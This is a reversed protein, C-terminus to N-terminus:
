QRADTGHDVGTDAMVVQYSHAYHSAGQELVLYIGLGHFQM